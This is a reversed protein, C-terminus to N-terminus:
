AKNTTMITKKFGAETGTYKYGLHKLANQRVAKATIKKWCCFTKKASRSAARPGIDDILM